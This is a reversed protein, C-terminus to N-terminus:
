KLGCIKDDSIIVLTDRAECEDVIELRVVFRMIVYLSVEGNGLIVSRVLM